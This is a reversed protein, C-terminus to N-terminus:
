IIPLPFSINEKIVTLEEIEVGQKKFYNVVEEILYKPASAGATIGLNEVNELWSTKIESKDNILYARKGSKEAVEKLRNSNSSEKSGIVLVLDAKKALEKVANQRNQTAYCIDFAPPLILKPFRKKLCNIIEKTDDFSLTTQTLVILKDTQPPITKKADELTKILVISKDPVEKLVGIAEPHNKHGIYFIFFGQGYFKKAEVHVKNVLPCVADFIKLKKRKAIQYLDTSSGHASFVVISNDPIENIDEIFIVGKKEFDSIVHRNHVIQHRVYIPTKYKQLVLNVVEVARKVGACFGRPSVLYIKKLKKM